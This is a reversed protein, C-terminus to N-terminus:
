KYRRFDTNEPTISSIASEAHGDFYLANVYKFARRLHDADERAPGHRYFIHGDIEKQRENYNGQDIRFTGEGDFAYVFETPRSISTIKTVKPVYPASSSWHFTGENLSYTNQFRYREGMFMRDIKMRVSTGVLAMESPDSSPCRFVHNTDFNDPATLHVQRFLLIHVPEGRPPIPLTGQYESIYLQLAQGIQRLNGLCAVTRAAASARQLAPLLIAILVAIIGVVVLLEVLTFGGPRNWTQKTM